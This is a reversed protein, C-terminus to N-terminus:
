PEAAAFCPRFEPLFGPKAAFGPFVVPKAELRIWGCSITNKPGFNM